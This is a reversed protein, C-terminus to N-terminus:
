VFRTWLERNSSYWELTRRLGKELEIKPQWNLIERAKTCDLYQADIEGPTGRGLIEYQGGGALKTTLSALESVSTPVGTGFNFVEGRTREISTAIRLFSEVADDIFMYDRIHNGSGRIKVKRGQIVSSVFDPIARLFNMDRGGYVNSSRSIVVQLGYTKFYAYAAREAGIKSADYPSKGILPHTEPIPLSLPDGYVKDTSALVLSQSKDAKRMAELLNITGQFNVSFTESPNTLSSIVQTVAALHFILENDKVIRDVVTRDRIDGWTVKVMNEFSRMCPLRPSNHRVLVSVSNSEKALREALWSGIFGTAGTVLIRTDRLSNM